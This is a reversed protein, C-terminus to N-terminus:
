LLCAARWLRRSAEQAIPVDGPFVVMFQLNIVLSRSTDIGWQGAEWRLPFFGLVIKKEGRSNLKVSDPSLKLQFNYKREVVTSLSSMYNLLTNYLFILADEHFIKGSQM